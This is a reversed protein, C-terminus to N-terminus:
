ERNKANEPRSQSSPFAQIVSYLKETHRYLNKIMVPVEPAAKNCADILTDFMCKLDGQTFCKLLDIFEEATGLNYSGTREKFKLAEFFGEIAGDVCFDDAWAIDGVGDFRDLRMRMSLNLFFCFLAMLNNHTADELFVIMPEYQRATILKVDINAGDIKVVFDGAAHHWPFIQRFESTDYYLTLIKSAQKYIERAQEDSIYKYGNNVDWVIIKQKSDRKDISLHFEHYGELWEGLSMLMSEEKGKKPSRYKAEGRFYARPLYPLHFKNNLQQLVSFENKLWEKGKESIAVNVAFKNSTKEVIVDISASHYLAGHKETRILIEDIDSVMVTKNLRESVVDVLLGYSDKSVFGKIAEFYHGYTLRSRDDLNSTDTVDSRRLIMPTQCKVDDVVIDGYPSSALYRVPPEYIQRSM